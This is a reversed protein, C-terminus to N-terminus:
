LVAVSTQTVAHDWFFLRSDDQREQEQSQPLRVLRGSQTCAVVPLGQGASLLAAASCPSIVRAQLRTALLVRRATAKGTGPASISRLTRHRLCSFSLVSNSDHARVKAIVLSSTTACHM